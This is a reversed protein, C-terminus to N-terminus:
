FLAKSDDHFHKPSGTLTNPSTGHTHSCAYSRGQKCVSAISGVIVWLLFSPEVQRPDSATDSRLNAQNECGLAVKDSKM